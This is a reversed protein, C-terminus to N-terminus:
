LALLGTTSNCTVNGRVCSLCASLSFAIGTEVQLLLSLLEFLVSDDRGLGSAAKAAADKSSSGPPPSSENWACSTRAVVGALLVFHFSTKIEDAGEALEGIEDEDDEDGSDDADREVIDTTHLLFFFCPVSHVLVCV